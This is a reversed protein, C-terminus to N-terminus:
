RALAEGIMDHETVETIRVPIVMGPLLLEACGVIEIGGDVEPAERFSRGWAVGAAVDHEEVLVDLTRGEFRLQREYSIDEQLRMLRDLRGKGIEAPVQQELSAAHTGEEASFIFGGLRDFRVEEMFRLLNSFAKEDEGPFGVMVTTRLTFDPDLERAYLLSRSFASGEGRRNMASLIRADAHQVPIDAYPLVQPFARLADWFRCDVRDPHLYLLRLWLHSPLSRSLDALLPLLANKGFDAGYMTLDQAVLCIERAGTEVLREAEAVVEAPPRSRLPGRISPIMCYSCRNDCGEAIKLYRSWSSIGPFLVRCLGASSSVGLFSGLSEWAEVGGWFDVSPLEQRLEKEYREVLCGLVGIKKIVGQNKLQELDLLVDVGEEVASAIFGCTNVLVMEAASVDDVLCHGGERAIGAFRESDVQNKACGLSLLHIKMRLISEPWLAGHDDCRGRPLLAFRGPSAQEM